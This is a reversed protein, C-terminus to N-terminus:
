RKLIALVIVGTADPLVLFKRGISFGIQKLWSGSLRISPVRGSIASVTRTERPARLRRPLDTAPNINNSKRTKRAM